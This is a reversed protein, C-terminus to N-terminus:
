TAGPQAPVLKIPNRHSRAAARGENRVARASGFWAQARDELIAHEWGFAGASRVTSGLEVHDAGGIIFLEPRRKQPHGSTQLMGGGGRSLYYLAVASAAAVNVTNLTRSPMPIQVFTQAASAVDHAVGRRENGAVLAPNPGAPARFGYVDKAGAM